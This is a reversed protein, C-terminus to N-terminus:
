VGFGTQGEAAPPPVWFCGGRAVVKSRNEWGGKFNRGVGNCIYYTPYKKPPFFVLNNRHNSLRYQLSINNKVVWLKSNLFILKLNTCQVFVMIIVIKVQINHKLDEQQTVWM